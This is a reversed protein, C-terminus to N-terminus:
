FNVRLEVGIVRGRSLPSFTPVPRPGAGDGGFAPIDPFVAETGAYAENTLNNGYISFAWDGGEPTLTVNFDFMDTESLVGRNDDTYFSRDRHSYSLRTSLQGLAGLPLDVIAYAGYTWPSLRPIDLAFDLDNIVRDNNIDLRLSKYRGETYGVQGGLLLQPVVRFQAEAEFGRVEVTGVNAILQAIGVGALPIQVERQINDITNHFIAANFRGRNGAFKLKLGLEYADQAEADFPGPPAGPVTNRFNYGGSRFGKTYFAYVQTDNSPEWQLGVRPTLDSWNEDDAFDAIFTRADYNGGGPRVTGVSVEKTERSYRGGLNLTLTDTFHWDVTGFVGATDFTGAGGGTRLATGLIRQEIYRLDQTFYYLGATVDFRGFTGAYRLENSIQDQGTFNRIHFVTRAMGDLDARSDSTFERWGLINTIRGEGLGVDVNTEFTASTWDNVFFGPDNVEFDFTDRSFLARNQSAPGDGEARGQEFRLLFELSDSPAYRLAPRVLWQRHEGHESGNARNTLWGDDYTYYAALKASLGSAIPGSVAADAVMRLGTEVGFRMRAEFTDTPRRTRILVAGGTVNRGFLVGQPGRLVEIAEIDFNDLVQGGNIGQYVGDVFIGVTPDISPITSAIGLGRISFNAYGKVTGNEDLAVSPMSNGLDELNRFNLAELQESGFATVALPVDQVDEPRKTATVIVDAMLADAPSMEEDPAQPTAEVTQQAHAPAAVVGCGLATVPLVALYRVAKDLGRAPHM